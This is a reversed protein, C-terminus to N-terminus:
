NKIERQPINFVITCIREKFIAVDFHKAREICADHYREPDKSVERIAHIISEVTPQVLLGTDSTVTERFGGSDVAVVPKGSAMAELPTLGSDSMLQM